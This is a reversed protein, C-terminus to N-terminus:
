IKLKFQAAPFMENRMGICLSERESQYYAGKPWIDDFLFIEKVPKKTDTFLVPGFGSSTGERSSWGTLSMENVPVDITKWTKPYQRKLKSLDVLLKSGGRGSIGRHLKVTKIGNADFYAQTAARCHLYADIELEGMKEVGAKELIDAKKGRWIMHTTTKELEHAMARIANPKVGHSSGLWRELAVYFNTGELHGQLAVQYSEADKGVKQYNKYYKEYTKQHKPDNFIEKHKVKRRPPRKKSPKMIIQLEDLKSVLDDRRALLINALDDIQSKRFGASKLIAKVDDFDVTQLWKAYAKPNKMITSPVVQNFVKGARRGEKLLSDWEDVLIGFSKSGGQARFAMTGGYDVCQWRKGFRVLNDYERGVVDWNGTLCSHLYHKALEDAEKKTLAIEGASVKRAEAKAGTKWKTALGFRKEGEVTIEVLQTDFTEFGYKKAIHASAFESRAQDAKQYFKVYYKDGDPGIFQAGQNSGLQTDPIMEWDKPPKPKEVPKVKTAPKPKAPPKKPAPAPKPKPVSAMAVDGTAPNITPVYMTIEAITSDATAFAATEQKTFTFNFGSKKTRKMGVAEYWQASKATAQVEMKVGKNKAHLALSRFMKEGAGKVNGVTGLAEMRMFTKQATYQAVSIVKGTSKQTVVALNGWSKAGQFANFADLQSPIKSKAWMEIQPNLTGSVYKEGFSKVSGMQIQLDSPPISIMPSEQKWLMVTDCRCRGHFPAFWGQNSVQQPSLNDIQAVRPFPFAQQMAAALGNANSATVDAVSFGPMSKEISEWAQQVSFKRGDLRNCVPCTIKDRQAIVQYTTVGANHAMELATFNWLRGVNVDSMHEFYLNGIHDVREIRRLLDAKDITRLGPKTEALTVLRNVEPHLVRDPYALTFAQLHNGQAQNFYLMWDDMTFDAGTSMTQKEVKHESKRFSRITHRVAELTTQDLVEEVGDSVRDWLRQGLGPTEKRLINRVKKADVSIDGSRDFADTIATCMEGCEAAWAKRYLQVIMHAQPGWRSKRSAQKVVRFAFDFEDMKVLHGTLALFAM